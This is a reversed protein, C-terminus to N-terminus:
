GDNKDKKGDLKDFIRQLKADIGKIQELIRDDGNTVEDRKAYEELVKEKLKGLAEAQKDQQGQIRDLWRWGFGGALAIAGLLANQLTLFESM